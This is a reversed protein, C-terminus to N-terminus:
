WDQDTDVEIFDIRMIDVPVNKKKKKCIIWYESCGM